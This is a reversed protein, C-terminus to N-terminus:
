PPRTLKGHFVGILDGNWTKVHVDTMTQWDEGLTGSVTFSDISFSIANGNLCGDTVPNANEQMGSFTESGPTHHLRFYSSEGTHVNTITWQGAVARTEGAPGAETGAGTLLNLHLHEETIYTSDPLPTDPASTLSLGFDEPKTRGTPDTGALQEKLAYIRSGKKASFDQSIGLSSDLCISITLDVDEFVPAHQQPSSGPPQELARGMCSFETRGNLRESDPLSQFHGGSLRKVIRVDALSGGVAAVIADRLDKMSATDLLSVTVKHGSSGHTVRVEVPVPPGMTIGSIIVNGDCRQFVAEVKEMDRLETEGSWLQVHALPGRQAQECIKARLDKVTREPSISVEKEVYDQISTVKFTVEAGHGGVGDPRLVRGMSMFERQNGIPTENSLTTLTGTGARKILKIESLKSEGLAAMVALRVDLVTGNSLVKITIQSQMEEVAHKVTVDVQKPAKAAEKALREEEKRREKEAQRERHRQAEEERRRHEEEQRRRRVEEARAAREYSERTNVDHAVRKGGEEPGLYMFEFYAEEWIPEFEFVRYGRRRLEFSDVDRSTGGEPQVMAEKLQRVTAGEEVHFDRTWDVGQYRFAVHVAVM